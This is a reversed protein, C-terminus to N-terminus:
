VVGGDTLAVPFQHALKNRVPFYWHNSWFIYLLSDYMPQKVPQQWPVFRAVTQPPGSLLCISFSQLQQTKLAPLHRNARHWFSSSKWVYPRPYRRPFLIRFMARLRLREKASHDNASYKAPLCGRPLLICSDNMYRVVPSVKGKTTFLIKYTKGTAALPKNNKRRFFCVSSSGSWNSERLIYLICCQACGCCGPAPKM